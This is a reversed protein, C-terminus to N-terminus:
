NEIRFQDVIYKERENAQLGWVTVVLNSDGQVHIEAFHHATDNRKAMFPQQDVTFKSFTNGIESKKGGPSVKAYVVGTGKRYQSLNSSLINPKKSPGLLPFTREYSQDHSALDLDVRHKELVPIVKDSINSKSPHSTGFAYLPEHHYVILWTQGRERAELLDQDLWQLQQDTPERDVLFFSTFHADGVDFSYSRSENIGVPHDFRPAWDNFRETLYIEHNGYQAM